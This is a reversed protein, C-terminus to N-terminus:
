KWLLCTPFFRRQVFDTKRLMTFSYLVKRQRKGGYPRLFAPIGRGNEMMGLGKKTLLSKLRYGLGRHGRWPQSKVLFDRFGVVKQSNQYRPVRSIKKDAPACILGKGARSQRKSGFPRLFPRRFRPHLFSLAFGSPAFAQSGYWFKSSPRNRGPIM